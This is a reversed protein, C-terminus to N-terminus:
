GSTVYVAVDNAYLKRIMVVKSSLMGINEEELAVM